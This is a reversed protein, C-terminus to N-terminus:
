EQFTLPNYTTKTYESQILMEQSDPDDLSCIPLYGCMKGYDGKCECFNCPFCIDLPHGKLFNEFKFTLSTVQRMLQEEFKDMKVKSFEFIQSRKFVNKNTKNIFIGNVMVGIDGGFLKDHIMKYMMLQPSMEYQALYEDPIYAATVKHDTIVPQHSAFKGRFDMTGVLMFEVTDTKYYPYAFRYELTPNGEKDKDPSLLDKGRFERDYQMVCNNLHTVNRWENDPVYIDPQMYHTSAENLMVSLDKGSYFAVLAKHFATGYEMKYDKNGQHGLGRFQQYWVRRLCGSRQHASADYLIIWKGTKDDRQLAICNSDIM